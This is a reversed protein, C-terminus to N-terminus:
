LVHSKVLSHDIVAPHQPLTPTDSVSGSEFLEMQHEGGRLDFSQQSGTKCRWCRHVDLLFKVPRQCIRCHHSDAM